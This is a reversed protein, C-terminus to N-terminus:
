DMARRSESKRRGAMSDREACLSEFGSSGRHGITKVVELFKAGVEVFFDEIAAVEADLAEKGEIVLSVLRTGQVGLGLFEEAQDGGGDEAAVVADGVVDDLAGPSAPGAGLNDVGEIDGQDDAAGNGDGM